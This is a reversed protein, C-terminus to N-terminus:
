GRTSTTAPARRCRAPSSASRPAAPSTASGTSSGSRRRPPQGGPRARQDRDARGLDPRDRRPQDADRRRDPHLRHAGVRRAATRAGPHRDPRRRLRHRDGAPRAPEAGARRQHGQRRRRHPERGRPPPPRPPLEAGRRHPRDGREPDRDPDSASVRKGGESEASRVLELLMGCDTDRVVAVALPIRINALRFRPGPRLREAAPIAAAPSAAAVRARACRRRRHGHRTGLRAGRRIPGTVQRPADVDVEVKQGDRLGVTLSHRPACRCSAAPTASRRARRTGARAPGGQAPPVPPLGM